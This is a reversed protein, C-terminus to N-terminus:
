EEEDGLFEFDDFIANGANDRVLGDKVLDFEGDGDDRVLVADYMDGAEPERGLNVIVGTHEGVELFRSESAIEGTPIAGKEFLIVFGPESLTVADVRIYQAPEKDTVYVADIIATTKSEEVSEDEMEQSVTAFLLHYASTSYIPSAKKEYSATNSGFLGARMGEFGPLTFFGFVPILLIVIFLITIVKNQM